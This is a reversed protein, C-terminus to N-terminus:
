SQDPYVYQPPGLTYGGVSAGSIPDTWSYPQWPPGPNTASWNLLAPAPTPFTELLKQLMQPSCGLQAAIRYNRQSVIPYAM